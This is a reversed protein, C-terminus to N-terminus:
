SWDSPFWVKTAPRKLTTSQRTRRSRYCVPCGTGARTRNYIWARYEHGFPCRWWVQKGAFATVKWPTVGGNKAPNWERAIKPFKVALSNTISFRRGACFPCRTKAAFRADPKTQWEHDPGKPCLWWVRQKSFLVIDHPTLTGNKTPHWQAAIQPARYAVTRQGIPAIGLCRPCGTGHVRNAIPADWVHRARKLCRWWVKRVSGTTVDRPTLKGNRTPHWEAALDPRRRALSNTRSARHGACFPCGIGRRGRLEVASQWVHDPGGPCKWWVIRDSGSTVDRPTLKGNLMPHWQRAVQPAVRALSNTVSVRKGACFPCGQGQSRHNPTAQWVHDPGKRCRWWLRRTSGAAIKQPDLKGNKSGHLSSALDPFRALSVSGRRRWRPQGPKRNLRM